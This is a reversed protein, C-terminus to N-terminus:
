RRVAPLKTPDGANPCQPHGLGSASIGIGGSPNPTIDYVINDPRSPDGSLPPLGALHDLGLLSRVRWAIDHDTCAHDGAVGIGGLATQGPGFLGMGGGIAVFGGIRQGIMPDDATGFKWPAGSFAAQANVPYNYTLAGVFGGPQTASYLNSTSLALPGTGFGNAISGSDFAFANGTNARMASSLRGIGMQSARDNGSFVTACVVGDRDVITAWQQANLGSSEAGRATILARKLTLYDPLNGCGNDQAYAFHTLCTLGATMWLNKLLNTKM